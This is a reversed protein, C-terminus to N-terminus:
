QTNLIKMYEWYNPGYDMFIEEGDQITTLSRLWVEINSDHFQYYVAEANNGKCHGIAIDSCTCDNVVPGRNQPFREDLIGDLVGFPPISITYPTWFGCPHQIGDYNTIFEGKQIKETAFLGRGAKPICSNKIKTKLLPTNRRSVCFGRKYNFFRM